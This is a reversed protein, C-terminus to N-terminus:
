EKHNGDRSVVTTDTIRCRTRTRRRTRYGLRYIKIRQSKWRQISCFHSYNKVEDKDKDDKKKNEDESSSGSDLMKSLGEDQDVGKVEAEQLV